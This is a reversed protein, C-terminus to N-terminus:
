ATEVVHVIAHRTDGNRQIDRIFTNVVADSFGAGPETHLFIHVEERQRTRTIDIPSPESSAGGGRGAGGGGAGTAQQRFLNGAVSRGAVAAVGGISAWLAAATFHGASEAPNFFLTAFGLALEKIANVAAEAAISALAAALIKRMVAPGTTGLLVWNSVVQGIASSVQQFANTLIDALPVVSDELVRAFEKLNEIDLDIRGLPSTEDEDKKGQDTIAKMALRHRGAEAERLRNLEETRADKEEQTRNSERNEAEQLRISELEQRHREEEDQRDFELQARLIDRRRAHHIVMLNIAEQAAERQISVVERRLSLLEDAYRRENDLDRQRGEERDREGQSEIASREAELIRIRNNLDAIVKARETPDAIGTAAKLKARTAEVEDDILQLRIATIERAADEETKVRAAALAQISAIVANARIQEVQLLTDITGLLIEKQAAAGKRIIENRRDEQEQALILRQAEVQKLEDIVKRRESPERGVIELKRVLFAEERDLAASEINAIETDADLAARRGLAVSAEISAIRAADFRTAIELLSEQHAVEDDREQRKVDARADAVERDFQARRDKAKQDLAVIEAEIETRRKLDDKALAAETVLLNRKVEFQALDADRIKRNNEITDSLKERRTTQGLKFEREAEAIRSAALTKEQEFFAQQTALLERQSQLQSQLNRTIQSEADPGSPTAATPTPVVGRQITPLIPNRTILQAAVAIAQYLDLIGELTPKVQAWTAITVIIAGKLPGVFLQALLRASDALLRLDERNARLAASLQRLADLAVPVVERGIVAGTARLQFQLLALQDNFEDAAKADAESILIGMERLREIAGDLDGRSEKLIALFQKGGRAGFLEAAANTQSFGEPMRALAALAQRLASETDNAEIGLRRLLTAEKSTPDQAKELVQQLSTLSGTLSDIEGGTTRALVELASLTEVNVGTQQSLDFLKGEVESSAQALGFLTRALLGAAAATALIGVVAIAAPGAMGSLSAAMRPVVAEVGAMAAAAKQLEPELQRALSQGFFQIAAQSKEAETGLRGFRAVFEAVESGSKGSATAIQLLSSGFIELQPILRQAISQGFFSVAAANRQSTDGILGLARVLRLAEDNSKGSDKLIKNLETGAQAAAELQPRLQGALAGGLFGVTAANKETVTGLLNLSAIFGAVQAETRRSIDGIEALSLGAAHTAAVTQGASTSVGELGQAISVFTGGLPVHRAVFQNLSDSIESFARNAVTVSQTLEPGLSQRLQAIAARTEAVATKGQSADARLRWLLSLEDAM